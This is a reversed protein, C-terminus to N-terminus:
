SSGGSLNFYFMPLKKSSSIQMIREIQIRFIQILVHYTLDLKKLYQIQNQTHPIKYIKMPPRHSICSSVKTCGWCQWVAFREKKPPCLSLVQVDFMQALRYTDNFM